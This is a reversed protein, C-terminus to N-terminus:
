SGSSGFGDDNRATITLQDDWEPKLIIIKELILQAVRDGVDVKFDQEGLNILICIIEGRYDSDIVGALVDIGFKLALGSRPAIRGYYENPIALALGTRITKREGSKIILKEVSYIDLGGANASGRSPLTAKPHLKRFKLSNANNKM